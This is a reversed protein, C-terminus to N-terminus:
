RSCRRGAGARRYSRQAPARMPCALQAARPNRVHRARAGCCGQFPLWHRPRQGRRSSAHDLLCDDPGCLPLRTAAIGDLAGEISRHCLPGRSATGPREARARGGTSNDNPAQEYSWVLRTLSQDEAWLALVARANAIAAQIKGRHRIISPNALLRAVDKEDFGAVVASDFGSFADRFAERKRLVTLWSLGSQFGELCLKEYIRSEDPVPRGWEEDHYRRYEPPALGWPCRARGDDGVVAGGTVEPIQEPM